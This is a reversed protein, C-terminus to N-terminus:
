VVRGWDKKFFLCESSCHAKLIHDHCGFEFEKLGQQYIRSLADDDLPPDNTKNWECLAAFMMKGTLGSQRLHSAVRVGVNDRGGESVGTMLKSMCIKTKVKTQEGSGVGKKADLPESYLKSLEESTDIDKEIELREVPSTARNKIDAISLSMAEFPYLEIKHLGTKANITNEMRFIRTKDYISTDINIGTAIKLAVKRFRKNIDESPAAQFYASPIMVHFGKAGSFYFRCANSDIDFDNMNEVLQQLYMQAEDLNQSDIDIPLWDSWAKGTYGSVTGRKNFHVAMEDNYRFYTCYTEPKGIPKGLKTLDYIGKRNFVGGTAVNVYKYDSYLM